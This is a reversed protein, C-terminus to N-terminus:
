ECRIIRKSYILLLLIFQSAILFSVALANTTITMLPMLGNLMYYADFIQFRANRQSFMRLGYFASHCLCLVSLLLGHDLPHGFYSIISLPCISFGLLISSIALNSNIYRREYLFNFPLTGFYILLGVSILFHALQGNYQHEVLGVILVTMGFLLQMYKEFLNRLSMRQGSGLTSVSLVVIMLLFYISFLSFIFSM